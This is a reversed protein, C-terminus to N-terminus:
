QNKHFQAHNHGSKAKADTASTNDKAVKEKEPTCPKGRSSPMGREAGHDHRPTKVCDKSTTADPKASSAASDAPATQALTATASLVLAAAAAIQRGLSM